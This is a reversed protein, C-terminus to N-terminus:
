PGDAAQVRLFLGPNALLAPPITVTITEVPTANDSVESVLTFGAWSGAGLTTSSQCTYALGTLAPLRRKYTFTGAAKDPAGVPAVSSGSTPDLGFAYEQFNTLGDRDPDHSPDTDTFGAFGGSWTSYDSATTVTLELNNGNVAVTRAVGPPLNVTTPTGSIGGTATVDAVNFITTGTSNTGNGVSVRGAVTTIASPSTGEVTVTGQFQYCGYQAFNKTAELTAGNRLVPDQLINVSGSAGISGVVTGGEIILTTAPVSPIGGFANRYLLELTAGGHITITRSGSLPFLRLSLESSGVRVRSADLRHAVGGESEGSMSEAQGGRM